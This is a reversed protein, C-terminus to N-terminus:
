VCMKGYKVKDIFKFLNVLMYIQGRFANQVSCRVNKTKTTKIINTNGVNLYVTGFKRIKKHPVRHLIPEKPLTYINFIDM